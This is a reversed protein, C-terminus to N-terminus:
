KITDIQSASLLCHDTEQDINYAHFPTPGNEDSSYIIWNKTMKIPYGKLVTPVPNGNTHYIYIRNETYSACIRNNSEGGLTIKGECESPVSSFNRLYFIGATTLVTALTCLAAEARGATKLLEM